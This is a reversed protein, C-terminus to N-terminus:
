PGAPRVPVRVRTHEWEIVLDVGDTGTRAFRMTFLETAEPLREVRVTTEGLAARRVEADIPIGWRNVSRNVVIRWEASDPIAYLTYSGQAIRVDGIHLAVPTHVTTAENAGLRWPEGFPVLRGMIPRGLKRPRSYCVKITDAGLTTVASDLPSIRLDLDVPNGRVWCPPPASTSLTLAVLLATPNM